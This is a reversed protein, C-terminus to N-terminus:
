RLLVIENVVVFDDIELRYFYIGTSVSRGNSDKGEWSASYSGPPQKEHCLTNLRQGLSNYIELTVESEKALQYQISTEETFPNPYSAVRYRNHPLELANPEEETNPFLIPPEFNIFNFGVPGSLGDQMLIYNNYLQDMTGTETLLNKLDTDILAADPERGPTISKISSAKAQFATGAANITGDSDFLYAEPDTESPGAYAAWSVWGSASGLTEDVTSNHYEFEELLVPKNAYCYRLLGQIYTGAHEDWWDYGHVSVYDLLPAIKQPNFGAYGGPQEINQKFPISWQILGVTIMHKSDVERIAEVLRKTWNYAVDDRFLQFDFLRQDNPNNTTESPIYPNDWNEGSLPYDPWADSLSDENAYKLHIWDIWLADMPGDTWKVYPENTLDWAFIAPEDKYRDGFAKVLYELGDLSVEDSYYDWSLWGTQPAGEWVEVLDFIIRLDYEKALSIIKDVKQFSAEDLTYRTPEFKMSSLFIRIVNVGIGQLQAFHNRTRISDFNGIPNPATFAPNDWVEHTGYSEPDYYNTGFPTFATGSVDTEFHWSDDAVRIFESQSDQAMGYISCLALSIGILWSKM